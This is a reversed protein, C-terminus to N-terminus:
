CENDSSLFCWFPFYIGQYRREGLALLDWNIVHILYNTNAGSDRSNGFEVKGPLFTLICFDKTYLEVKGRDFLELFEITGVASTISSCSGSVYQSYSMVTHVKLHSKQSFSCLGLLKIIQLLKHRPRSGGGWLRNRFCFFRVSCIRLPCFSFIVNAAAVM